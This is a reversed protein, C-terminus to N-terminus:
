QRSLVKQIREKTSTDLQFKKGTTLAESSSTIAGHPSYCQTQVTLDNEDEDAGTITMAMWGNGVAESLLIGVDTFVAFGGGAVNSGDPCEAYAVLVPDLDGDDDIDIYETEGSITGFGGSSLAFASSDLGDLKDSNFNTAKGSQASVAIPVQGARSATIALAPGSGTNQLLTQTSASNGRGLLFSGGTAATATGTGIVLVAGFIGIPKILKHM